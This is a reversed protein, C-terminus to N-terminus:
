KNKITIATSFFITRGPMPYTASMLYQQDFLNNIKVNLTLNFKRFTFNQSIQVNSLSFSPLQTGDGSELSNRTGIYTYSYSVNFSRYCLNLWVTANHKPLYALQNNTSMETNYTTTATYSYNANFNASFKNFHIKAHVASEVGRSWVSKYNVPSWNGDPQPIWQIWNNIKSTYVSIESWCIKEGLKNKKVVNEATFDASWGTEPLIDLNGGPTWYKDNFTPRRFKNSVNSKLTLWKSKTKYDAGLSILPHVKANADFEKRVSADFTIQKIQYQAATLLALNQEVPINQYATVDGEIRSYIAAFDMSFNNSCNWRFDLDNYFLKSKIQSDIDFEDTQLNLDTYHEKDLMLATKWDLSNNGFRRKFEAFIKFTNDNENESGANYSGMMPPIEKDKNQYWIGFIFQSANLNVNGDFFLGQSATKNHSQEVVPNGFKEYDQYKFNNTSKNDFINVDFSFRNLKADTSFNTKRSGFSGTEFSFTADSFNNPLSASQNTELDISGGFTGSGYLSGSAGKVINVNSLVAVPILSLDASGATVSNIPFGNWNVSTHNASTGRLSVTELAGSGSIANIFLPTTALLLEGLDATKNAVIIQSDLKIVSKDGNYFTSRNEIIQIDKLLIQKMSDSSQGFLNVAFCM